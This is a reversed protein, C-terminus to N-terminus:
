LDGPRDVRRGDRRRTRWERLTLDFVFWLGLWVFVGFLALATTSLLPVVNVLAVLLSYSAALAAVAVGLGVVGCTAHGIGGVPERVSPGGSSGEGNTHHNTDAVM